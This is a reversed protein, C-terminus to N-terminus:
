VLQLLLSILPLMVQRIEDLSMFVNNILFLFNSELLLHYVNDRFPRLIGLYSLQVIPYLMRLASVMLILIQFLLIHIEM